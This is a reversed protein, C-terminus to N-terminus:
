KGEELYEPMVYFRTNSCEKWIELGLDSVLGNVERSYTDPSGLTALVAGNRLLEVIMERKETYDEMAKGQYQNFKNPVLFAPRDALFYFLEYDNTIMLRQPDISKSTEVECTWSQRADTYGFSYGPHLIFPVSRSAYFVVLGLGVLALVTNTFLKRPQSWGATTLNVPQSFSTLTWIIGVTIFPIAYRKIGPEDTSADLFSTNILLLVLYFFGYTALTGPLASVAGSIKGQIWRSYRTAYVGLGAAIFLGLLLLRL